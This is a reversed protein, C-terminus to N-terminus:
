FFLDTEYFILQGCQYHLFHVAVVQLLQVPQSPGPLVHARPLLRCFAGVYSVYGFLIGFYYHKLHSIQCQRILSWALFPLVYDCLTPRRYTLKPYCGEAPDSRGPSM